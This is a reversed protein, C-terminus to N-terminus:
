AVPLRIETIPGGPDDPAILYAEQAPGAIRLENDSIWNGIAAYSEHLTDYPGDHIIVAAKGGPISRQVFSRGGPTDPVAELQTAVPFAVEVDLETPKFEPDHYVSFCPAIPMIGAPMLAAYGDGIMTGVDRPDALVERLSVVRQPEMEKLVVDHSPMMGESEILRLRNEVRSLRAQEETVLQSIEAQKLRLMGRLEAASLEDNLIATIEDLSLGLDKLALIRNLRPLQTVAYYRYGTDPDISDPPLLGRDGYYRLASVPVRSITSFEGIRYM